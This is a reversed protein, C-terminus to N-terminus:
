KGNCNSSVMTGGRWSQGAAGGVASGHHIYKGNAIFPLIELDVTNGGKKAVLRRKVSSVVVDVFM